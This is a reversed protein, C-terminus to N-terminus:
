GDDEEKKITELIRQREKQIELLDRTQNFKLKKHNNNVHKYSAKAIFELSQSMDQLYGLVTIYFNSAGVSSEDLNRIFYFINDSIGFISINSNNRLDFHRPM